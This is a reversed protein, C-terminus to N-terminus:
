GCCGYKAPKRDTRVSSSIFFSCHQTRYSSRLHVLIATPMAVAQSEAPPDCSEMRRACRKKKQFCVFTIPRPDLHYFFTHDSCERDVM